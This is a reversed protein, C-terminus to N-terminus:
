KQSCVNGVGFCRTFDVRMRLLKKETKKKLEEYRNAFLKRARQRRPLIQLTFQLAVIMVVFVNGFLSDYNLLYILSCKVESIDRM